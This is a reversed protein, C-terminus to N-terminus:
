SRGEGERRAPAPPRDRLRAPRRGVRSGARKAYRTRDRVAARRDGGARRHPLGWAGGVALGGCALCAAATGWPGLRVGALELALLLGFGFSGAAAAAFSAALARPAEM